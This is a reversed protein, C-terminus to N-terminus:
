KIGRVAQRQALKELEDGPFFRDLEAKPMVQAITSVPVQGRHEPDVISVKAGKTGKTVKPQGMVEIVLGRFPQAESTALDALREDIQSDDALNMVAGLFAKLRPLFYDGQAQSIVDAVNEGVKSARQGEHPPPGDAFVHLVTMEVAVNSLQARNKGAKVKDIRMLYRGAKVYGDGFSKHRKAGSLGAFMTM